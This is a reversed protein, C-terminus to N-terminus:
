STSAMPVTIEAITGGGERAKLAIAGHQLDM